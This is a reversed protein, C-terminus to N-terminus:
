GNMQGAEIEGTAFQNFEVYQLHRYLKSDGQLQRPTGSADVRGNHIVIVHDSSRITSLRHPLLILTRGPIALRNITDDLLSKVGESLEETPEEIILISPDHLVARALAVQFRQETSLYTDGLPGITTDYGHPLDQIFQHAHALKAAEIIKPLSYSSDGLGINAKITDTFLLDAQLVTAVQARISELTVDRLDHGDIRVRGVNPDILRPILCALALKADEDLGLISTKSGAKIEASFGDLLTRGSISEISVNEFTIRQRAPPLFAAGSNQQLEPSRSLFEDIVGASRSAQRNLRRSQLYSRTPEIMGALAGILTLVAATSIRGQLISYGVVGFGLAIATGLLLLTSPRLNGESRIRRAEAQRYRESHEDFRQKDVPEMGYVRVTRLLSLDEQLLSLQLAADRTAAQGTLASSEQLSRLAYWTLGGLAALFLTLPWSVLLSFVVCGVVLVAIRPHFDLETFLGERVDNVERTFLNVVPGIGETPLSSQGLRYMQRHILKRLASAATTSADAMAGRRARAVLALVLALVLGASLLTTLAGQNNALTPIFRATSQLLLGLSRGFLNSKSSEALIRAPTNLGSTVSHRKLGIAGDLSGGTFSDDWDTLGVVLLIFLAGVAALSLVLLSHVVGLVKATTVARGNEGMLAQARRFAATTPM